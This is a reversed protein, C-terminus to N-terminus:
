GFRPEFMDGPTDNVGSRNVCRAHGSHTRVELGLTSKEGIGQLWSLGELEVNM